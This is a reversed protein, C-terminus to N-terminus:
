NINLETELFELKHATGFQWSQLAATNNPTAANKDFGQLYKPSQMLTHMGTHARAYPHFFNVRMGEIMSFYAIHM